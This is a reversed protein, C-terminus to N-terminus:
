TSSLQSSLNKLDLTKKPCISNWTPITKYNTIRIEMCCLTHYTSSLEQALVLEIRNMLKSLVGVQSPCVSLCVCPWHGYSIGRYCLTARTFLPSPKDVTLAPPDNANKCVAWRPPLHRVCTPRLHFFFMVLVTLRCIPCLVTAEAPVDIMDCELAHRPWGIACKVCLFACSQIRSEGDNGHKVAKRSDRDASRKDCSARDYEYRLSQSYAGVPTFTAPVLRYPTGASAM